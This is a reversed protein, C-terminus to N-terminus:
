TYYTKTVFECLILTGSLKLRKVDKLWKKQDM